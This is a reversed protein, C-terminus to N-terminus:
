QRVDVPAAENDSGGCGAEHDAIRGGLDAFCKRRRGSIGLRANPDGDAVVALHPDRDALGVHALVDSAGHRLEDGFFEFRGPFVHIDNEGRVIRFVVIRNEAGLHGAPAPRGAHVEIGHAASAGGAPERQDFGGGLHHAHRFALQARAFRTNM